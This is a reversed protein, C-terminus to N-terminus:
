HAHNVGMDPLVNTAYDDFVCCFIFVIVNFSMIKAVAVIRPFTAALRRRLPKADIDSTIRATRPSIPENEPSIVM